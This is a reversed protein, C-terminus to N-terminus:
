VSDDKQLKQLQKKLMKIQATEINKTSRNSVKKVREAYVLSNSTEDLNYDAPSVNVMMMTRANGGLSDSMLMTLPHNRYPIHKQGSTLASIVNGLASLSKNISQLEQMQNGKADTKGVRESGALDVLTLKGVTRIKTAKNTATLIITMILHSRSSESNMLTSATTRNKTGAQILKELESVDAAPAVTAGEIQVCGLVDKTVKLIPRGDKGIKPNGNPKGIPKGKGKRPNLLDELSDKYLEVMTFSVDLDLQEAERDKIGFIEVVARPTIGLDAFTQGGSMTYTKGSGTQGYAFICCNYGDVAQLVLPKVQAFVDEQGHEPTFVTDFEYTKKGDALKHAMKAASSGEELKLHIVHPEPFETVSGCGRKEEKSSMPRVRCLVRIAGKMEELEKLYKRRMGQERQYREKYVETHAEMEQVAIKADEVYKKTAEEKMRGEEEIRDKERRTAEVLAEKEQLEEVKKDTEEKAKALRVTTKRRQVDMEQLDARQMEAEKEKSELAEKLRAMEEAAQRKAAEAEAQVKAQEARERDREAKMEELQALQSQQAAAAQRRSEEAQQSGQKQERLIRDLEKQLMEQKAKAEVKMAAVAQSGKAEADALLKKRDEEAEAQQARVSAEAETRAQEAGVQQARLLETERDKSKQREEELQTAATDNAKAHALAQAQAEAKAQAEALKAKAEALQKGSGKAEEMAAALQKAEDQAKELKAQAEAQSAELKAQQQKQWAEQQQTALAQAEELKSLQDAQFKRTNEESLKSVLTAKVEAEKEADKAAKLMQRMREMEKEKARLAYELKIKEEMDSKAKKEEVKKEADMRQQVEQLRQREKGLQAELERQRTSALESKPSMVSPPAGNGGSPSSSGSSSGGGTQLPSRQALRRKMATKGKGQTDNGGGKGSGEGVGNSGVHREAEKQPPQQKVELEGSLNKLLQEQMRLLKTLESEEAPPQQQQQQQEGFGGHQVGTEPSLEFLSQSPSPPAVTPSMPQPPAVTPSMPQQQCQQQAYFDTHGDGQDAEHGGARYDNEVYGEPAEWVSEGTNNNYYYHYQSSEDWLKEWLQNVPNAGPSAAPSTHTSTHTSPGKGAASSSTSAMGMDIGMDIGMQGGIQGNQMGRIEQGGMQGGGMQGGGMQGGMQGMGMGMGGMQGMSMQGGGMQGGGMQGMGMGMGGMQGGAMQGGAMQGGMGQMFQQAMPVGLGAAYNWQQGMPQVMGPVLTPRPNNSRGGYTQLIDQVHMHGACNAHDLATCGEIDTENVLDSDGNHSTLLLAVLSDDGNASAYHLPTCGNSDPIDVSIGPSGKELLLEVFEYSRCVIKEGNLGRPKLDCALHLATQGHSNQLNLFKKKKELIQIANGSVQRTLVTVLFWRYQFQIALMLLTNGEVPERVSTLADASLTKATETIMKQVHPAGAHPIMSFLMSATQASAEKDMEFEDVMKSMPSRPGEIPEASPTLHQSWGVAQQQAYQADVVDINLAAPAPRKQQTQQIGQYGSIIGPSVNAHGPNVQQGTPNQQQQQEKVPSGQKALAQMHVAAGVGEAYKNKKTSAGNGM